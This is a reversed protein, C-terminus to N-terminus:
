KTQLLTISGTISEAIIKYIGAKPLENLITGKKSVAEGTVNPKAHVVIAGKKTYLTANGKFKKLLCTGNELAVFMNKFTGKGTVSAIKSQIEVKMTEPITIEMDIAIVKHAALKDNEKEFFPSYGTTVTLIRNKESTNVVVNEYYEGEVHTQITIKDTKKTSINVTFVDDSHLALTEFGSASFEKQLIKQATIETTFLIIGIVIVIHKLM